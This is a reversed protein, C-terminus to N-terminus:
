GMELIFLQYHKDALADNGADESDERLVMSAVYHVLANKYGDSISLTDALASAETFDNFDNTVITTIYQAEPHVKIIARQGDNIYRILAPDDWRVTGAEDSIQARVDSEVELGTM